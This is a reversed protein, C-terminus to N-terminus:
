KSPLNCKHAYYMAADDAYTIKSNNLINPLDNLFITFLLPGLISGQAVGIQVPQKDSYVDDNCVVQNRNSLYSQFWALDDDHIGYCSLKELLISHNVTDFAKVLDLFIVGTIKGSDMNTLIDDSFQAVATITSSSCRFGFQQLSLLNNEDLYTSLQQHVARGLLKSVV